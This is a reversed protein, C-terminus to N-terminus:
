VKRGHELEELFIFMLRNQTRWRKETIINKVSKNDTVSEISDDKPTQSLILSILKPWTFFYKFQIPM